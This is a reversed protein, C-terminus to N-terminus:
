WDRPVFGEPISLKVTDGTQEILYFGNQLIAERMAHNIIAGAIAGQYKRKDGRKDAIGRLIEMRSIHKEIDKESPKAKIELAIVIDGNELLLDIETLIDPDNPAKRIEINKSIQTIPFGHENFKEIISPGVLHEALEGFRNNLYGMQRGTEKLQKENEKLLRDTEKQSEKILRDTERQSEKLEQIGAWVKEFTLDKPYDIEM